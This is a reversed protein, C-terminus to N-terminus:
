ARQNKIGALGEARSVHSTYGLEARAKADNLTVEQGIINVTFRTIPPSSKLRLLDWLGECVQAARWALWRPISKNPPTLGQTALLATMFSRFEVPEKDTLFYIEGGVGNELALLTGEVVNDVHCTSTLYDGGDMWM